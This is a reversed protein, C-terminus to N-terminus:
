AGLEIARVSVLAAMGTTAYVSDVATVIEELDPMEMIKINTTAWDGYKFPVLTLTDRVGILQEALAKVLTLNANATKVLDITFSFIERTDPFKLYELVASRLNPSTAEVGKLVFKPQFRIHTAGLGAAIAFHNLGPLTAAGIFFTPTGGDIGFYADCTKQTAFDGDIAMGFAVGKINPLGGDYQPLTITAVTEFPYGIQHVPNAFPYDFHALTGIGGGGHWIASKGLFSLAYISGITGISATRGVWHWGTGDFKFISTKGANFVGAYLNRVSSCLNVVKGQKDSPMGDFMNMGIDTVEGNTAYALLADQVPFVLNNNFIVVEKANNADECGSLDIYPVEPIAPAPTADLSQIDEICTVKNPYFLFLGEYGDQGLFPMSNKISNTPIKKSARFTKSEGYFAMEEGTVLAYVKSVPCRWGSVLPTSLDFGSLSGAISAPAPKLEYERGTGLGDYVSVIFFHPTNAEYFINLAPSCTGAGFDLTGVTAAVWTGDFRSMYYTGLPFINIGYLTGGFTYLWRPNYLTSLGFAASQCKPPCVVQGRISTDAESDWFSSKQRESSIDMKECGFGSEFNDMWWNSMLSRGGREQQGTTRIHQPFEILPQKTIFSGEKLSYTSGNLVVQM